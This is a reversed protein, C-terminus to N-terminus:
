SELLPILSGVDIPTHDSLCELEVKHKALFTKIRHYDPHEKLSGTVALVGSSVLGTCGGIFGYNRGELSIYGATILLSDICNEIAMNHITKDSTIIASSSIVATSCKSYGQKVNVLLLRQQELNEKIAPDTHKFRHFCISGVRAVNYAINDPYNSKLVTRGPIANLGYGSLKPELSDLCNPCVVIHRNGLPHLQIDPHHAISHHLPLCGTTLIIDIGFSDLKKLIGEPTRGDAVILKVQKKPIFPVEIYDYSM